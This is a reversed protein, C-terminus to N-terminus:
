RCKCYQSCSGHRGKCRLCAHVKPRTELEYPYVEGPLWNRIHDREVEMTGLDVSFVWTEEAPTLVVYGRGATVIKATRRFYCEKHGPLGRTAEPLRMSREHVWESTVGLLHYDRNAFVRLEDGVLSVLRVGQRQSKEVFRFTSGRHAPEMVHEPLRFHGFVRTSFNHSFITGDEEIAWFNTSWARGVFRASEVGRIHYCKCSAQSVDWGNRWRRDPPMPPANYNFVRATVASIGSAMGDARDHLLCTVMFSSLTIVNYRHSLNAGLCRHYKMGAVPPIRVFRRTTPECVVLDPFFGHRRHSALLLVSGSGDVLDWPRGGPAAPLFDLSFHRPSISPAAPVFAVRHRDLAHYHGICTSFEHRCWCMDRGRTSLLRRWRTCVAAARVISDHTNLLRFVRHLLHDPVDHVMTPAM